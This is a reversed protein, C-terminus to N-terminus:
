LACYRNIFNRWASKKQVTTKVPKMAKKTMLKSNEKSQQEQNRKKM